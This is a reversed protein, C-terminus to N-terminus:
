IIKSVFSATMWLQEIFITKYFNKRFEFLFMEAPTEKKLLLQRLHETFIPTRLFKAFSVPFCRHWPRKKLLTKPRLGAFKILFSVRACNNEHSKRSIKLFVNRVTCMQVVAEAKKFFQILSSFFFPELVPMKEHTKCYKDSCQSQLIDASSQQSSLTRYGPDVTTLSNGKRKLTIKSIM